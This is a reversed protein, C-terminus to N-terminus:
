VAAPSVVARALRRWCRAAGARDVHTLRGPLEHLVLDVDLWAPGDRDFFFGRGNRHVHETAHGLPARAHWAHLV